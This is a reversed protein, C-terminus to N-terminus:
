VVRMKDVLRPAEQGAPIPLLWINLNILAQSVAELQAFM